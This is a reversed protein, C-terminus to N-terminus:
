RFAKQAENSLKIKYIQWNADEVQMKYNRGGIRVKPLQKKIRETYGSLNPNKNQSPQKNQYQM